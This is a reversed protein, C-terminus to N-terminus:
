AAAPQAEAAIRPSTQDAAGQKEVDALRLSRGCMFCAVWGRDQLDDHMDGGCSPCSRLYWRMKAM